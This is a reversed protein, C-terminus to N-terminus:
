LYKYGWKYFTYDWKYGAIVPLHGYSHFIVFLHIIIGGHISFKWFKWFIWIFTMLYPLKQQFINLTYDWTQVFIADCRATEPPFYHIIQKFQVSWFVYIQKILLVDPM